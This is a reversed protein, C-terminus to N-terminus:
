TAVVAICARRWRDDRPCVRRALEALAIVNARASAASRSHAVADGIRGDSVVADIVRSM